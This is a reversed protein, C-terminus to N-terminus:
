INRLNWNKEWLKKIEKSMNRARELLTENTLLSLKVRSNAKTENTTKANSKFRLPNNLLKQCNACRESRGSNKAIVLCQDSSHVTERIIKGTIPHPIAWQSDIILNCTTTSLREKAYSLIEGDYMGCCIKIMEAKRMVRLIKDVLQESEGAQIQGEHWHVKQNLLEVSLTGTRTILIQRENSNQKGERVPCFSLRITGDGTVSFSWNQPLRNIIPSTSQENFAANKENCSFQIKAQLTECRKNLWKRLSRIPRPCCCLGNNVTCLNNQMHETNLKLQELTKSSEESSDITMINLFQFELNELQKESEQLRTLEKSSHCNEGRFAFTDEFHSDYKELGHACGKDPM